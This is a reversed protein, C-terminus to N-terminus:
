TTSCVSPPVECLFTDGDCGPPITPLDHLPDGASCIILRFERLRGTVSCHRRYDRCLPIQDGPRGDCFVMEFKISHRRQREGDSRDSRRQHMQWKNRRRRLEAACSGNPCTRRPRGRQSLRLFLYRGCNECRGLHRLLEPYELIRAVTRWYPTAGQRALIRELRDLEPTTRIPRQRWLHRERFDFHLDHLARELFHGGKGSNVAEVLAEVGGMGDGEAVDTYM